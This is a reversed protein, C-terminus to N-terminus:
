MRGRITNQLRRLGWTILGMSTAMVILLIVLEIKAELAKDFLMGIAAMFGLLCVNSAWEFPRLLWNEKEEKTASAAVTAM